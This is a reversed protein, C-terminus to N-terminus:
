AVVEKSEVDANNTAVDYKNAPAVEKGKGGKKAPTKRSKKLSGDDEGNDTTQKASRRLQRTRQLCSDQDACPRM